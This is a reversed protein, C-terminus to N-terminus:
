ISDRNIPMSMCRPGGRGRSLESGPITNVRIGAKALLENTVDNRDYTIVNGPSLALSNSGMNWHERASIVPDGGGVEIFQVSSLGLSKKFLDRVSDTTCRTHVGGNASPTIDYVEFYKDAICPHVLFKDYDVMTCLVDLHMFKRNKPNNFLLIREFGHKFVQKAVCEVANVSTREGCGIALVKNSLVLVDGGEIEYGLDSDYWLPIQQATFLPHYRHIYKVPLTERKRSPMSMSSIIMGNGVTICVDRTFYANPVPDTIFPYPDTVCLRMPKDVVYSLDRYMIGKCVENFVGRADKSCLYDRIIDRMAEGQIGSVRIYDDIFARRITSDAIVDCFLDALYLVTVGNARLTNAFADHEKQATPLYPTDEALMQELYDPIIHLIEVDPRHLMVTNLKGIESFQSVFNNM